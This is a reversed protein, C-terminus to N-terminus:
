QSRAPLGEWSLVERVEVSGAPEYALRGPREVRVFLTHAGPPLGEFVDETAASITITGDRAMFGLGDLMRVRGGARDLSGIGATWEAGGRLPEAPKATITMRGGPRFTPPTAARVVPPPEGAISVTYDPLPPVPKPGASLTLGAVGAAAAIVVAAVFWRARRGGTQFMASAPM